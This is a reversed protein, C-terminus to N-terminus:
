RGLCIPIWVGCIICPADGRLHCMLNCVAHPQSPPFDPAQRPPTGYGVPSARHMVVM